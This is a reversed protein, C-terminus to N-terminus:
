KMILFRTQISGQAACRHSIECTLTYGSIEFTDFFHTCGFPQNKQDKKNKKLPEFMRNERALM